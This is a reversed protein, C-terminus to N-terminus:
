WIACGAFVVTLDEVLHTVTEILVDSVPIARREMASICMKTLKERATEQTYNGSIEMIVGIDKDSKPIAVAIGATLITGKVDSSLTAFAVPLLSGFPLDIKECESFNPPLISSIKLLNYNAMGSEQLAMDFALLRNENEAVGVGMYFKRNYPQKIM